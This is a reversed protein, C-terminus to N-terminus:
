YKKKKLEAFRRQLDDFDFDEQNNNGGKPPASNGGPAGGGASNGKNNSPEDDDDDSPIDPLNPVSPLHSEDFDAASSPQGGSGGVVSEYSPPVSQTGPASPMSNPLPPPLHHAEESKKSAASSNQSQAPDVVNFGAPNPTSNSASFSPPQQSASTVAPPMSPLPPPMVLGSPQDANLDILQGLPGPPAPINQAINGGGGGNGGKRYMEDERLIDQDPEYEVNLTKAIEATSLLLFM